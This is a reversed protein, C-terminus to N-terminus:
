RSPICIVRRTYDRGLFIQPSIIETDLFRVHAYEITENSISDLDSYYDLLSLDALTAKGPDAILINFQWFVTCTM